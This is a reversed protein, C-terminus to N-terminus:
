VYVEMRATGEVTPKREVCRNQLETTESDESEARRIGGHKERQPIPMTRAYLSKEFNIMDVPFPNINLKM